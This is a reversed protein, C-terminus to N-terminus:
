ATIVDDDSAGGVGLTRNHSNEPAQTPQTREITGALLVKGPGPKLSTRDYFGKYDRKDHINESSQTAPEAEITGGLMLKGPGPKLSTRDYLRQFDRRALADLQAQAEAIIRQAEDSLVRADALSTPQTTPKSHQNGNKSASDEATSAGKGGSKENDEVITLTHGSTDDLDVLYVMGLARIVVGTLSSQSAIQIPLAHVLIHFAVGNVIFSMVFRVWIRWDGPSLTRTMTANEVPDFWTIKAGTKKAAILLHM